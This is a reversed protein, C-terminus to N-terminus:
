YPDIKAIGQFYDADANQRHLLAEGIGVHYKGFDGRTKCRAAGNTPALIVPPPGVPFGAAIHSKARRLLLRRLPIKLRQSSASSVPM